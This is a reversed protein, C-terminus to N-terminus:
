YLFRKELDHVLGLGALRILHQLADKVVCFKGFGVGGWRRERETRGLVGM